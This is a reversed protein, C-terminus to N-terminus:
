SRGCAALYPQLAEAIKSRVLDTLRSSLAGDQIQQYQNPLYQSLLTPPISATSLNQYLRELASIVELHMWYYRCRDSYSFKLSLRVQHLDGRYFGEWSTPEALMVRELVEPITSLQIDSRGGLWEQEIRALAFVAERYAFTLAPGVKLIAFHDRVLHKLAASSQYDTSHAEFVLNDFSEILRSLAAAKSPLYPYVVQDGFEVGPHVVVAIVREWAEELGQRFFEQRTLEITKQCDEPHTVQLGSEIDQIGGPPPVETGIVYVPVPSNGATKQYAIEGALCLEATRRAILEPALPNTVAEGACPMSADLHLKTYGAQVYDSVLRRAKDMATEPTQKRWPYPGLHDGGLVLGEPPLGSRKALRRVMESFRAPPMNMYGGDQNVQNCTSEILLARGERASTSFVTELVEPHASCVSFIGVPEGSKHTQILDLISSALPSEPTM